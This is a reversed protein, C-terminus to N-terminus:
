GGSYHRLQSSRSSAVDSDLAAIIQRMMERQSWALTSGAVISAIVLLTLLRLASRTKRAPTEAQDTRFCNDARRQPPPLPSGRRDPVAADLYAAPEDCERSPTPRRPADTWGTEDPAHHQVPREIPNVVEISRSRSDAQQPVLAAKPFRRRDKEAAVSAMPSPWIRSPASRRQPVRRFNPDTVSEREVKRIIEELVLRRMTIETISPPPVLVKLEAGLDNRMQSYIAWRMEARNVKLEAIARKLVEYHERM